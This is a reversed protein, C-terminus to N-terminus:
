LQPNIKKRRHLWDEGCEEEQFGFVDVGGSRVGEM